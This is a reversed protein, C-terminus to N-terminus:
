KARPPTKALACVPLMTLSPMARAVPSAHHRKRTGMPEKTAPVSTEMPTSAHSVARPTRAILRVTSATSATTSAQAANSGCPPAHSTAQQVATDNTQAMCTSAKLLKSPCATAVTKAVPLRRLATSDSARPIALPETPSSAVVRRNEM